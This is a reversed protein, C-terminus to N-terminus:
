AALSFDIPGSGVNKQDLVIGRDQEVGFARQGDKTVSDISRQIAIDRFSKQPRVSVINQQRVDHQRPFHVTRVKGSQCPFDVGRYFNEEHRTIGFISDHM